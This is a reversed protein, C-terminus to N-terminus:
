PSVPDETGVVPTAKDLTRKLLFWAALGIAVNAVSSAAFVGPLGVLCSGLCALPVYLIFMQTVTLAAAHLPKGLANLTSGTLMFVGRLGYGIPVIWLYIAINEIVAADDNFLGAVPRALIALILVMLGGWGLAFRHCLAVARHVRIHKGGGVNQGVFPSLVSSLAMMVALAFAEIRGAVGFAAVAEPGYGSVLRTLVGMGMPLIMHSGANPLGIYLIRGWSALAEKLTPVAFTIMRDRFHLVSIAVAFTTARAIVTATAAGALEMRPFPGLGFILLPDLLANVVAAVIMIIGPTITDGTARIASNGVMPIVVFLVGPYWIQMYQKILPLTEDTAGLSRFVPEITFLGVTVLLVVLFFSLTLGDTTLRQVEYRSSGGIARSVVVSVGMGLGLALSVVVMVVPFTFSMAALEASGLRGVFYADVLNIMIIGTLGLLM